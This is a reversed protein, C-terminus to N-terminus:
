SATDLLKIFSKVTKQNNFRRVIHQRNQFGLENAEDLDLTLFSELVDTLDKECAPKFLGVGVSLDAGNVIEPIGGIRSAVILKGYLMSEVLVYPSPEPCLSPIIVISLKKMITAPNIKPLFDVTVGNNFKARSPKDSTMALFANIEKKLTLSKLVQILSYVGKVFDKGGFYGIGGHEASTFPTNPLPNSIVHSKDSLSPNKSLVLEKQANSVFILADGYAGLQNYFKGVFVNLFSSAAISTSSRKREVMEHLIYSKLSSSGVSKSVFNYMLSTPCVIAYNHLHIIIPKKRYKAIPIVSYWGCPVYVIDSHKILNSIFSSGLIGINALTYYRSGFMFNIPLRYVTIGNSLFETSPEEPFQKTVITIKIGEEALLKAYLWTALEAGGGHPYLLESFVLLRM